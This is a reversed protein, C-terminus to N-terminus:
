TLQSSLEKVIRAFIVTSLTLVNGSYFLSPVIKSYNFFILIENEDPRLNISPNLSSWFWVFIDDTGLRQECGIITLCLFFM